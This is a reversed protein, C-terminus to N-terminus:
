DIMTSWYKNDGKCGEVTDIEVDGYRGRDNIIKLREHILSTIFRKTLLIPSKSIKLIKFEWHWKM